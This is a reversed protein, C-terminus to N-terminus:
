KSEKLMQELCFRPFEKLLPRYEEKIEMADVIKDIEDYCERLLETIFSYFRSSQQIIELFRLLRGEKLAIYGKRVAEDINRLRLIVRILGKNRRLDVYDDALQYVTGVLLGYRRALNRMKESSGALVAASEAGAAFLSATKEQIIRLYLMKSPPTSSFLEELVGFSSNEWAELFLRTIEVGKDLVTRFATNIIRHGQIVARGIGIQRWLAPRSRRYYDWDIIDDHVLSANHALELAYAVDLASERDKGDLADFVLMLLLPRLRKGGKITEKILGGDISERAKMAFWDDLERKKETLYKALSLSPSILM